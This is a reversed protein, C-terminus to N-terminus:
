FYVAHFFEAFIQEGELEVNLDTVQSLIVTDSTLGGSLLIWFM